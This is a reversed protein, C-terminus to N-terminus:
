IYYSTKSIFYNDSQKLLTHQLLVTGAFVKPKSFRTLTTRGCFKNQSKLKQKVKANKAVKEKRTIRLGVSNYMPTDTVTYLFFVRQRIQIALLQATKRSLVLFLFYLRGETNASKYVVLSLPFQM